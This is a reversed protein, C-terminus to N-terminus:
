YVVQEMNRDPVISIWSRGRNFQVENGNLDYYVTRIDRESKNWTIKQYTGDFFVIGEGSGILEYDLRGKDDGEISLEPVFQIIVNKVEVQSTNNADM